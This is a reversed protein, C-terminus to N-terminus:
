ISRHRQLFLPSESTLKKIRVKIRVYCKKDAETILYFVVVKKIVKLSHMVKINDLRSKPLKLIQQM